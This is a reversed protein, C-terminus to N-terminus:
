GPVSEKRATTKTAGTNKETKNSQLVKNGNTEQALGKPWTHWLCPCINCTIAQKIVKLNYVKPQFSEIKEFMNLVWGTSMHWVESAWPHQGAKRSLFKPM